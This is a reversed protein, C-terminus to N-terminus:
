KKALQEKFYDVWPIAVPNVGYLMGLYFTTFGALTYAELTQALKNAGSLTIDYTAVHQKEVV